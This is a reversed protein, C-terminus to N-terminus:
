RTLYDNSIDGILKYIMLDYRRINDIKAKSFMKSINQKSTQTLLAIDSQIGYINTKELLTKFSIKGLPLSITKMYSGLDEKLNKIFRDIRMEDSNQMTNITFTSLTNKFEIIEILQLCPYSMKSSVYPFLVEVMLELEKHYDTQSYKIVSIMELLMNIEDVSDKDSEIQIDVDMRKAASLAIQANIFAEGTSYNSNKDEFFSFINGIGIGVKVHEPYFLKQLLRGCLYADQPNYFVGQVSDGGSFVLERELGIQFIENLSVRVKELLATLDAWRSTDGYRSDKIDAVFTCYSKTKSMQSLNLPERETRVRVNFPVQDNLKAKDNM